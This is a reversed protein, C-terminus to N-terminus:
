GSGYAIQDDKEDGPTNCLRKPTLLLAVQHRAVVGGPPTYSTVLEDTSEVVLHSPRIDPLMVGGPPTYSNVLEGTSEVVLHSIQIDPLMFARTPDSWGPV